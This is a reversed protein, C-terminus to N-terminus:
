KLMQEIRMALASKKVDDIKSKKIIKAPFLKYYILARKNLAM